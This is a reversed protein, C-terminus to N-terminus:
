ITPEAVDPYARELRASPDIAHVLWDPSLDTPHEIDVVRVYAYGSPRSARFTDDLELERLLADARESSSMRYRRSAMGVLIWGRVAQRTPGIPGGLRGEGDVKWRGLPGGADSLLTFDLATAAPEATCGAIGEM